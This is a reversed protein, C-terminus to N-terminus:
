NDISHSLPRLLSEDELWPLKDQDLKLCFSVLMPGSEQAKQSLNTSVGVRHTKPVLTKTAFRM